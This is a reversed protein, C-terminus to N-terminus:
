ENFLAEQLAKCASIFSSTPPKQDSNIQHALDNIQQSVPELKKFLDDMQILELHGRKISLGIDLLRKQFTALHGQPGALTLLPSGTNQDACFSSIQSLNSNTPNIIRLIALAIDPLESEVPPADQLLSEGLAMRRAFVARPLKARYARHRLLEAEELTLALEM